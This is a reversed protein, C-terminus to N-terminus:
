PGTCSLGFKCHTIYALVQALKNVQIEFNTQSVPRCCGRIWTRPCHSVRFCTPYKFSQFILCINLVSKEETTVNWHPTLVIKFAPLKNVRITMLKSFLGRAYQLRQGMKAPSLLNWHPLLTKEREWGNVCLMEAEENHHFDGPHSFNKSTTPSQTSLLCKLTM